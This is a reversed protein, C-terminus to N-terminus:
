NVALLALRRHLRGDFDAEPQSKAQYVVQFSDFDLFRNECYVNKQRNLAEIVMSSHLNHRTLIVVTNIDPDNLVTEANVGAKEFGFKEAAERASAGRNSVITVLRISKGASKM